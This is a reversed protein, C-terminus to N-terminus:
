LDLKAAEKRYSIGSNNGKAREGESVIAWTNGIAEPCKLAEELCNMNYGLSKNQGLAIRAGSEGRKNSIVVIYIKSELSGKGKM